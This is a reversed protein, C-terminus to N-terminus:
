PGPPQSHSTDNCVLLEAGLGSPEDFALMTLNAWDQRFRRRYDRLPVDLVLCLLVRNVTSHGVLLVTTEAPQDASWRVLERLLARLRRAVTRGNEGNPPGFRAPDEDYKQRVEPWCAEIEEITHGEWDGYDAEALREDTEIPANPRALRATEVARSLPSSIVRNISQDKLRGGLARGAARGPETLEAPLHQGLYQEPHSRDTEGHRTLIVTLM